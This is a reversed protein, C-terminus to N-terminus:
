VEVPLFQMSGNKQKIYGANQENAQSFVVLWGGEIAMEIFERKMTLTENPYEHMAPIYDLPLHYPTPILDSAYAIKESGREVLVIQHGESPGNTVKLTMGPIVEFDDDVFEIMDREALPLFDDDYFADRYRENPGNAEEWSSKQVLYKAKPYTPVPSGSRDQKTCGGSHHFHLSSLVVLDIDRATIGKSKLGRPLKNGNLRITEKMKHQRKSGVGTNVLINKEATQVLMCNLGLRIRNRRDPKVQLEWESKPVQGFLCGGDMMYTGDSIVDITTTGLNM